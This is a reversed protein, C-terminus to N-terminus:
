LDALCPSSRDEITRGRQRTPSGRTRSAGATLRPNSGFRGVFKGSSGLSFANVKTQSNTAKIINARITEDAAVIVKLLINRDDQTTSGSYWNFSEHSTQLGNVIEPNEITLVEGSTGCRTSLITIGNNFWWFEGTTLPNELSKRIGQNIKNSKGQYDRVNPELFRTQLHGDKNTLIHRAYDTL